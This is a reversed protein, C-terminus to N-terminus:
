PPTNARQAPLAAPRAQTQRTAARAATRAAQPARSPTGPSPARGAAPHGRRRHFPALPALPAARPAQPTKTLARTAASARLAACTTWMGALTVHPAPAQPTPQTSAWTASRAFSPGSQLSFDQQAVPAAPRALRLSTCAPPANPAFWLLRRRRTNGLPACCATPPEPCPRSTAPSAIRAAAQCKPRIPAQQVHRAARPALPQRSPALLAHRARTVAQHQSTCPQPANPAAQPKTHQPTAAQSARPAPSWPASRLRLPARLAAFFRALTGGPSPYDGRQANLACTQGQRRIGVPSASKARRPAPPPRTNAPPALLALLFVLLLTCEM